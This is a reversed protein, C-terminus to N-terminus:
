HDATGVILPQIRLRIPQDSYLYSGQGWQRYVGDTNWYYIYEGSSGWTGEDSAAARGPPTLRKGGSTVKGKVGEYLIPQGAQNLLVIFGLKGPDATLQLRHKINDIEANDEFNISKAAEAAKNTQVQKNTPPDVDCGALMACALAAFFMTLWVSSASLTMLGPQLILSGIGLASGLVFLGIITAFFIKPLSWYFNGEAEHVDRRYSM